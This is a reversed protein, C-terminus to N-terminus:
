QGTTGYDFLENSSQEVKPQAAQYVGYSSFLGLLAAVAATILLRM